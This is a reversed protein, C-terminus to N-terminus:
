TSTSTAIASAVTSGGTAVILWKTTSAGVLEISQDLVAVTSFAFVNSVSSGFTITGDTSSLLVKKVTTPLPAVVIKRQGPRPATLLYNSAITSLLSIGNNTLTAGTTETTVAVNQVQSTFMYSTKGTSADYVLFKDTPDAVDTLPVAPDQVHFTYISM